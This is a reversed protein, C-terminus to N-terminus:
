RGGGWSATNRIDQLLAQLKGLPATQASTAMTHVRDLRANLRDIKDLVPRVLDLLQRSSCVYVDGSDDIMEFGHQLARELVYYKREPTDELAANADSDFFKHAVKDLGTLLVTKSTGEASM